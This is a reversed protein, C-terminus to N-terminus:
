RTKSRLEKEYAFADAEVPQESYEKYAMDKDGTEALLQYFDKYNDFNDTWEPAQPDAMEGRRSKESEQYQYAHRLEHAITEELKERNEPLTADNSIEIANRGPIYGGWQDEPLDAYTIDPATELNLDTSVENVLNAAADDEGGTTDGDELLPSDADDTQEPAEVGEESTPEAADDATDGFDDM